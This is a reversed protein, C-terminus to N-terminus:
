LIRVEANISGKMTDWVLKEPLGYTDVYIFALAGIYAPVFEEFSIEGPYQSRILKFILKREKEM